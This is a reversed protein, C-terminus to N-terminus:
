HGPPEAIGAEAALARMEGIVQAITDRPRKTFDEDPKRMPLTAEWRPLNDAAQQLGEAYQKFWGRAAVKDEPAVKGNRVVKGLERLAQLSRIYGQIILSECVFEDRGLRRALELSRDARAADEDLQASSKIDGWPSRYVGWLVSGLAPLKGQKLLGAV